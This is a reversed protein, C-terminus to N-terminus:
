SRSDSMVKVDGGVRGNSIRLRPQSIFLAHGSSINLRPLESQTPWNMRCKRFLGGCTSVADVIQWDLRQDPDIQRDLEVSSWQQRM